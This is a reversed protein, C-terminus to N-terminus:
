LNCITFKSRLQIKVAVAQISTNLPVPSFPIDQHIYLAVGGHNRRNHTGDKGIVSYGPIKHLFRVPMLTEQLALIGAKYQNMLQIIESKKNKVGQINWQIIATKTNVMM